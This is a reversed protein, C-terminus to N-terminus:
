ANRDTRMNLAEEFLNMSLEPIAGYSGSLYRRMRNEGEKRPKFESLPFLESSGDIRKQIFWVQDRQLVEEGDLLGLLTADHSTFILQAGSQNVKRSQFLAILKATLLPHLSADIEDIIILGGRELVPVAEVASQLLRITGASEDSVEFLVDNTAGRHRFRLQPGRERSRPATPKSLEDLEGIETEPFLMLQQPSSVMVDLLGIDASRLLEVVIERLHDDHTWRSAIQNIRRMSSRDVVQRLWIWSYVSHLPALVDLQQRNAQTSGEIDGFRAAVSLFLATPAVIESLRTLVSHRTEDGWHFKNRSREFIVRPRNFPYSHLWEEVVGDDDITFGYTYRVNSLLLDVVYSSPDVAVDSDLRFTQRELGIGPEVERDSRGVLARMYILANVLNSKGSANAGFVGVVPVAAVGHHPDQNSDYVPALNLQQEDRFSRHNTFRFSLLM